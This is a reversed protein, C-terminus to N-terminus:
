MTTTNTTVHFLDKNELDEDGLNKNYFMTTMMITTM